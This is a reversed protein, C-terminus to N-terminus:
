SALLDSALRFPRIVGAGAISNMSAEPRKNVGFTRSVCSKSPDVSRHSRMFWGIRRSCLRGSSRFACPHPLQHLQGYFELRGQTFAEQMHVPFNGRFLSALPSVPLFFKRRARSVSESLGGAPEGPCNVDDISCNGNYDVRALM